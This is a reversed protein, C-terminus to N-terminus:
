AANVRCNYRGADDPDASQVVWRRGTEIEEFIDGRRVEGGAKSVDLIHERAAMGPRRNMTSDALNALAPDTDLWDLIGTVDRAPRTPDTEMAANVNAGERRPFHRMAVGFTPELATACADSFLAEFASPM